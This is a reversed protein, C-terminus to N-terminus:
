ECIPERVLWKFFQTWFLKYGPWELFEVPGWHPAADSAFIGTRGKGYERVAIFPDGEATALLKVDPEVRIATKNYGLFHPWDGLGKMIPHSADVVKPTVGQPCEVRDDVNHITVPLIGGIATAGYRAKADIGSFSLYGGIMAFAGGEYVYDEIAKCRDPMARGKSFTETSLQLSNAGIDSLVIAAYECLEGSNFPFNDSVEHGPMHVVEFGGSELAEKIWKVGTEYECSTFIDFGKIHSIHKIWSEGAILIKKAVVAV